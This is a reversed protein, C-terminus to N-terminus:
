FLLGINVHFVGIKTDGPGPDLPWAWAFSLDGIPLKLLLPAIGVGHRFKAPGLDHLSDAVVGNDMFLAGFWPPSIPFQLDVNQIIRLNGGIPRYEVGSLGGAMGYIPYEVVEVRARDLKFGRITTDGGAFYREVKPLLSPGGLPFGHEFRVGHRLSVWSSLPVVATSRVAVKLFTDDGVEFPL